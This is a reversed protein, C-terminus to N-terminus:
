IAKLHWEYMELLGKRCLVLNSNGSFVLPLLSAVTRAARDVSCCPAHPQIYAVPACAIMLRRNLALVDSCGTHERRVYMFLKLNLRKALLGDSYLYPFLMATKASM